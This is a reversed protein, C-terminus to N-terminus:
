LIGRVYQADGSESLKELINAQEFLTIVADRTLRDFYIGRKEFEQFVHDLLMKGHGVIASTLLLVTENSLSFAKGLRGHRRSYNQQSIAEFSKAYRSDAANKKKELLSRICSIAGSLDNYNFDIDNFTSEDIQQCYNEVFERINNLLQDKYYFDNELIENKWYFRNTDPILVNLYNLVDIDTLLDQGHQYVLNYGKQIAARSQSISENGLSFYLPIIENDNSIGGDSVRVMTQIVYTFYYFELLEGVHGYFYDEDKKLNLIDENFYKSFYQKNDYFKFEHMHSKIETSNNDLTEFIVREYLNGPEDDLFMKKFEENDKLKLLEILFEGVRVEGKKDKGVSLPLYQLLKSSRMGEYMKSSFLKNVIEEKVNTDLIKKENNFEEHQIEIPKGNIMRAIVGIVPSFGNTFKMREPERTFFPLLQGFFDHEYKLKADFHLLEQLKKVQENM